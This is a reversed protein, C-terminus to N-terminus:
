ENINFGIRRRPKDILRKDTQLDALTQNILEIQMRTDENIDNYDAFVDELYDKLDKLDTQLATIKDVPKVSLSQRIFVFARIIANNVQIATESSLVSALMAVGQETFAFPLYRSGGWSSTAFQTRLNQWEKAELEFM